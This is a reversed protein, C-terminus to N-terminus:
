ITKPKKQMNIELLWRIPIVSIQLEYRKDYKISHKDSSFKYCRKFFAILNRCYMMIGNREDCYFKKVQSFLLRDNVM